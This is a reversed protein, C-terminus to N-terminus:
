QYHVKFTKTVYCNSLLSLEGKLACLELETGRHVIGGIKENWQFFFDISDAHLFFLLFLVWYYLMLFNWDFNSSGKIRLKSQLVFSFDFDCSVKEYGYYQIKWKRKERWHKSLNSLTRYTSM